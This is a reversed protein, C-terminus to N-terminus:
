KKMSLMRAKAQEEEAEKIMGKKQYLRSLNTHAMVADPALECFRQTVRIADDLRESRFYMEGLAEYADAFKPDIETAKELRAIADRLKDEQFLKIAERYLTSAENM